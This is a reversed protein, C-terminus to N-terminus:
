NSLSLNDLMDQPVSGEELMEAYRLCVGYAFMSGHHYQCMQKNNKDREEEMYEKAMNMELEIVAKLREANM